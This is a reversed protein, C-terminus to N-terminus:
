PSLLAGLPVAVKAGSALSGGSVGDDLVKGNFALHYHRNLQLGTAQLTVTFGLPPREVTQKWIIRLKSVM